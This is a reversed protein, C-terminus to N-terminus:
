LTRSHALSSHPSIGIVRDGGFVVLQPQGDVDILIPSAPSTDASGSKWELTGTQQNFAAVAQDPGGMTVIVTGGYALPSCTHGRDPSPARYEQPRSM